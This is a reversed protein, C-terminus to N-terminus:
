CLCFPSFWFHEARRRQETGRYKVTEETMETVSMEMVIVEGGAGTGAKEGRDGSCRRARVPVARLPRRGTGAREQPRNRRRVDHTRAGDIRDAGAVFVDSRRGHG